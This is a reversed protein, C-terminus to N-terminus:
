GPPVVRGSWQTLPRRAWQPLCPLYVYVWVRRGSRTFTERREFLGEDVGEYPDLREVLEREDTQRVHGSVWDAEPDDLDILAPYPGLDFLRGRVADASWGDRTAATADAPGLTGYAFLWSRPM